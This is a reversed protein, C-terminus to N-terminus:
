SPRRTPKPQRGIFARRRERATTAANRQSQAHLEFDDAGEFEAFGIASLPEDSAAVALARSTGVSL